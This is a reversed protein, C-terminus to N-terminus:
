ASDLEKESGCDHRPQCNFCAYDHAVFYAHKYAGIYHAIIYAGIYHAIIYAGIYHAIIYAGIYSSEVIWQCCSRHNTNSM